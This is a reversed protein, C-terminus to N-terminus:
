LEKKVWQYIDPLLHRTINPEDKLCEDLIEVAKRNKKKIAIIAKDAGSIEM